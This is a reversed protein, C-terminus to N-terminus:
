DEYPILTDEPVLTDDDDIIEIIPDEADDYLSTDDVRLVLVTVNDDSGSALAREVLATAAAQPNPTEGLVDAIHHERVFGSLGDSCILLRDGIELDMSGTDVGFDLRIGIDDGLGRSGFVFNQVLHRGDAETFPRGDRSAFEKWTHDRSLQRLTGDRWHYLRSDGVHCWYVRGEVVWAATLTTGMVVPGMEGAKERLRRHADLIFTHLHREPNQPSGKRFLRTLAQVAASSALDCDEHGGMGDAVAVLTGIAKISTIRESSDQRYRGERGRCILYNDENRSRGGRAPGIGRTCVVGVTLRDPM